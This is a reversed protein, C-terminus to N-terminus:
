CIFNFIVVCVQSVRMIELLEAKNSIDIKNSVHKLKGIYQSELEVFDELLNESSKLMLELNDCKLMRRIRSSNELENNSSSNQEQKSKSKQDKSNRLKTFRQYM